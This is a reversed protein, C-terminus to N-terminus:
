YIIERLAAPLFLMLGLVLALEALPAIVNWWRWPSNLAMFVGHSSRIALIAPFVYGYEMQPPVLGTASMVAFGPIVALISWIFSKSAFHYGIAAGCLIHGLGLSLGNVLAQRSKDEIEFAAAMDGIYCVWGAGALAVAVGYGALLKGWTFNDKVPNLYNAVGKLALKATPSYWRGTSDPKLVGQSVQFDLNRRHDRQFTEAFNEATVRVIAGRGERSDHERHLSLLQAPDQIHPYQRSRAWPPKAFLSSVPANNTQVEVEDHKSLFEFYKISDNNQSFMQTVLLSSGDASAYLRNFNDGSLGHVSVDMQRSYGRGAAFRDMERFFDQDLLKNSDIVIQGFELAAGIKVSAMVAPVGIAVLVAAIGLFYLFFSEM